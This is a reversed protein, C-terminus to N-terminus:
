HTTTSSASSQKNHWTDLLIVAGSLPILLWEPGRQSALEYEIEYLTKELVYLLLLQYSSPNFFSPEANVYGKMFVEQLQNPFTSDSVGALYAFSRIMGALDRLCLDKARREHLPRMPEGEFDIILWDNETRLVQGLHYDGHIRQRNLMIPIFPLQTIALLTDKRKFLERIPSGKRMKTLNWLINYREVIRACLADYERQGFPEPAFNPNNSPQALCRHLEATRQGLLQVSEML